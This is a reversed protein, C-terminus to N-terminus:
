AQEQAQEPPQAKEQEQTIELTQTQEQTQVPDRVMLRDALSCFGFKEYLGNATQTLLLGKGRCVKPHSLAYAVMARGIGRGREELAVVVDALYFMTSRDSTIRMFGVLTGDATFVGFPTSHKLSRRVTKANRDKAWYTLKLLRMVPETKFKGRKCSLTYGNWQQDKM